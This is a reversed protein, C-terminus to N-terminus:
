IRRAIAAATTPPSTSPPTIAMGTKAAVAACVVSCVVMEVVALFVAMFATTGLSLQGAYGTLINLGIAALSLALFPLLIASFLYDNGIFPVVLAAFALFAAIAWRDIRSPVWRRDTRYSATLAGPHRYSM